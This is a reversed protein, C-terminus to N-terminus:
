KNNGSASIDSMNELVLTINNYCTKKKFCQKRILRDVENNFFGRSIFRNNLSWDYIKYILFFFVHRNWM